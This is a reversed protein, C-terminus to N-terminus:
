MEEWEDVPPPGRRPTSPPVPRQEAPPVQPRPPPPPAAPQGPTGPSPEELAEEWGAAAAAQAAGAPAHGQPRAQGSPSPTPRARLEDPSWPSAPIDGGSTGGASPTGLLVSRMDTGTPRADTGGRGTDLSSVPIGQVVRIGEEEAPLFFDEESVEKAPRLKARFVVAVVVIIIVLLALLLLPLMSDGSSPIFSGDDPEDGGGGGGGGPAENVVIRVSSDRVVLGDSVELTIRHEGPSLDRAQVSRGLGLQGDLDSYWTFTLVQGHREDPDSCNGQLLITADHEFVMAQKPQTIRVPGPPDNVDSVSVTVPVVVSNMDDMVSLNFSVEGVEANTPTYVITGNGAVVQFHAFKGDSAFRFRDSDVDEVVVLYAVERDQTGALHFVGDVPGIGGISVVVPPDPISEVEVVLRDRVWFEGDTVNVWLTMSGYWDAPLDIVLSGGEVAASADQADEITYELPDGDPDRFHDALRITLRPDDELMQVKGLPLVTVPPSNGITVMAQVTAGHDIGDFAIVWVSWAQGKSTMNAPVTDDDLGPVALGDRYWSFEYDLHSTDRDLAQRVIDCRLDDATGPATPSIAISPVGPPNNLVTVLDEAVRYESGLMDSDIARARFSYAGVPDERNTDFVVSWGQGDWVPLSLRDSVWGGGEPMQMQVTLELDEPLDFEDEATIRLTTSNTRYISADDAEISLVSPAVPARDTWNIELHGIFMEQWEDLNKAFVDLYVRPHELARVHPKIGVSGEADTLDVSWLREGTLADVLRVEMSQDETPSGLAMRYSLNGWNGVDSVDGVDIITTRLTHVGMPFMEGTAIAVIGGMPISHTFYRGGSKFTVYVDGDVATPSTRTGVVLGELGETGVRVREIAIGGAIELTILVPPPVSSFPFTDIRVEVDGATVIDRKGDGNWDAFTVARAEDDQRYYLPDSEYGGQKGSFVMVTSNLSENTIIFGIDEYTDDDLHDVVLGRGVQNSLMDWKDTSYGDVDGWLVYVGRYQPAGSEFALSVLVDELGDGDVDGADISVVPAWLDLVQDPTDNWGSGNWLYVVLRDQMYSRTDNTEVLLVDTGGDGDLDEALVLKFYATEKADDPHAFTWAPATDFGKTTGRFAMADAKRERNTFVVDGL